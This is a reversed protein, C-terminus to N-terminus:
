WRERRARSSSDSNVLKRGAMQAPWILTLGKRHDASLPVTLPRCPGCARTRTRSRKEDTYAARFPFGMRSPQATTHNSCAMSGAV